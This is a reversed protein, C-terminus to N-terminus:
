KVEPKVFRGRPGRKLIVTGAESQIAKLKKLELTNLEKVYQFGILLCLLPITTIALFVMEGISRYERLMLIFVALACSGLMVIWGCVTLLTIWLAKWHM